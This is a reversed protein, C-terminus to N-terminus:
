QVADIRLACNASSAHPTDSRPRPQPIIRAKGDLDDVGKWPIARGDKILAVILALNAIPTFFRQVGSLQTSSDCILHNTVEAEVVLRRGNFRLMAGTQLSNAQRSCSDTLDIDVFDTAGVRNETFHGGSRDNPRYPKLSGTHISLPNLKRRENRLVPYACRFV